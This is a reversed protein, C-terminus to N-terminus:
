AAKTRDAGALGVVRNGGVHRLAPLQVRSAFGNGVVLVRVEKMASLTAPSPGRHAREARESRVACRHALHPGLVPRASAPTAGRREWPCCPHEPPDRVRAGGSSGGQGRDLSLEAAASAAPRPSTVGPAGTSGAGRGGQRGECQHREGTSRLRHWRRIGLRDVVEDARQERLQQLTGPLLGTRRLGV